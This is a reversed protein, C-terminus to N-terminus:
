VTKISWALFLHPQIISYKKLGFPVNEFKIKNEIENIYLKNKCSLKLPKADMFRKFTRASLSARDFRVEFIGVSYEKNWSWLMTVTTRIFVWWGHGSIIFIDSKEGAFKIKM